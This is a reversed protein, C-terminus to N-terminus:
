VMQIRLNQEERLAECADRLYARMLSCYLDRNGGTYKHSIVARPSKSGYRIIEITKGPEIHTLVRELRAKQKEIIENKALAPRPTIVNM